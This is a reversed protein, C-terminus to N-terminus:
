NKNISAIYRDNNMKRDRQQFNEVELRLKEANFTKDIEIKRTENTLRQSDNNIRSETEQENLAMNSIRELSALGEATADRELARGAATIRSKQLDTARDKDKSAEEWERDAQKQEANAQLEKDLLTQEHERQADIEKQKELRNKRGIAVLTTVSDASFLEAYDLMDNGLTNTQLLTTRLSELDRRAKADNVPLLGLRRLPFDKDTLNLYQKDGDSKTFVMDADIYEKQCYQAVALHLEMTKRRAVAMQNFINETQVYSAKTGQEVGAATEYQGPTGLRQPTIGIQELAMAKYYNALAMRSQIQTDYTISQSVFTNTAPNNGKLNQKSMDIPVVGVEKALERLKLLADQTTGQNKYESPLFNVDFLFFTGIEKELLNFIQNLCINYGVQFPRLKQAMSTTIIGGVPLKVDYVNSDGKIQYELPQVDLYIPEKLFSNGDNIKIGKWIEPIWFEYMTNPELNEKIQNISKTSVRSIENEKIFDSLLEDTVIATDPVGDPTTYNLFWMRKWSRWYAETVQLSDIRVNIDDRKDYVHGNGAYNHNFRTSLWKPVEVENGDEDKVWTHGMPTNFADQYELGLKYDYYNFFPAIHQEGFNKEVLNKWSHNDTQADEAGGEYYGSVGKIQGPTMLHGYRKVIDSPSLNFVRGVYEGDQPYKANADESIFTELVDWREPKYYDYGVYYHRFFRGTLLYDKMEEEDMTNMYFREQDAEIVHEGWEAAKTKYNKQMDLEIQGPDFLQKRQEEILQMFQQQQEESEFEGQDPNIGRMALLRKFELEFTKAAYQRVRETRERIFDNESINDVAKIKFDDKQGLYEGVLQNVIIGIIDYHKVFTPIAVQDGLDRIQKLIGEDLGYDSYVLKGDVMKYYDRFHANAARQQLGISELADMTRKKFKENKKSDPLVQNPLSSSITGKGLGKYFPYLNTGRTSM